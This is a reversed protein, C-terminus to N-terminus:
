KARRVEKSGYVNPTKKGGCRRRKGESNRRKLGEHKQELTGVNM